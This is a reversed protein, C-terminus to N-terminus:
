REGLRLLAHLKAADRSFEVEVTQGPQLAKLADALAKLSSTKVGGLALLRDGPKIGAAEAGSGPQVGGVRVGDGGDTMDPVIGTAARRPAADQAPSPPAAAPATGAFHLPEPRAALYDVAEKLIAAVKGLGAYDIRDATDSPRHYGEASSAYLQVAPVGAEVFARDDSGGIDQAATQVPIGTTAGAGTFIFPLERASGAGFVTIKGDGLRGVTDLNVDAIVGSLPFRAGRREAAKVYTRSGALGEEEGSFAAFIISREPKADVMLRALELVVAVGSANDDAGPHLQGKAGARADPWGLGLHDYHASVILTRGNLAPNTGPVVGVINRVQLPQGNEGM